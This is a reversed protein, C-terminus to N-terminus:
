REFFLTETKLISPKIEKISNVVFPDVKREKALPKKSKMEEIHKAKYYIIFYITFLM